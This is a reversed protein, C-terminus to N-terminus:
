TDEKEDERDELIMGVVLEKIKEESLEPMLFKLSSRYYAAKLTEHFKIIYQKKVDYKESENLISKEQMEIM